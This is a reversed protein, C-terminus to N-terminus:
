FEPMARIAYLIWLFQNLVVFGAACLSEGNRERLCYVLSVLNLISGAFACSMLPWFLLPSFPEFYLIAILLLLVAMASGAGLQLGRRLWSVGKPSAEPPNSRIYVGMGVLVVTLVAASAILERM